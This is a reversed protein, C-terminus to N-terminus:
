RSLLVYGAVFLLLLGIMVIAVVLTFAPRTPAAASPPAPQPPLTRTPSLTMEMSVDLQVHPGVVRLVDAASPRSEPSKALMRAILDVLDAPVGPATVLPPPEHQHSRMLEIISVDNFPLDGHLMEYALCGLSYVDSAATVDATGLSQEPSMYAPTGYVEGSRTVRRRNDEDQTQEFIRALGFDLVRAREGRSTRELMINAPKLDRHLIGQEHAHHLASAIQVMFLLAVEVPVPAGMLDALSEGEVYEFVMYLLDAKADYGYDFLTICNPDDLKAVARAETEFRQRIREDFALGSKLVKVAVARDVALQTARYVTGMAGSGVKADLLYREDVVRGLHPDPPEPRGPQSVM